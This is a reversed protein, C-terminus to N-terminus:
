RVRIAARDIRGNADIVTFKTFGPGHPQWVAERAHPDSAIPAGDVLWTLPLAGGEAKL